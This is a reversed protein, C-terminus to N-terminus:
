PVLFESDWATGSKTFQVRLHNPNKIKLYEMRLPEIKLVCFHNEANLYELKNPDSLASGPAEETTYDKRANVSIDNWYKKLLVEDTIVSALGEMRVQLLLDPQYFLMSVKNNKEIHALKESRRDTFITLQLDDSVQRLVVTRLRPLSEPGITALTCYRFPHGRENITKQFENKIEELFNTALM